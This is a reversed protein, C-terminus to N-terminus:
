NTKIYTRKSANEPWMNSCVGGERSDREDTLSIRVCISRKPKRPLSGPHSHGINKSKQTTIM